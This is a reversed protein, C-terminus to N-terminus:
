TRTSHIMIATNSTTGQVKVSGNIFIVCCALGLYDTYMPVTPPLKNATMRTMCVTRGTFAENALFRIGPTGLLTKCIMLAIIAVRRTIISEEQNSLQIPISESATRDRRVDFLRPAASWLLQSYAVVM